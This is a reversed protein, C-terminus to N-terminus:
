FSPLNKFFEIKERLERVRLIRFKEKEELIGRAQNWYESNFSPLDSLERLEKELRLLMRKNYVQERQLVKSDKFARARREERKIAEEILKDSFDQNITKSALSRIRTDHISKFITWGNDTLFVKYEEFTGPIKGKVKWKTKSYEIASNSPKSNLIRDYYQGDETIVRTVYYNEEPKYKNAKHFTWARFVEPRTYTLKKQSKNPFLM